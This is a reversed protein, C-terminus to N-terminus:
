AARAPGRPHVGGSPGVCNQQPAIANNHGKALSKSALAVNWRQDYTHGVRLSGSSMIMCDQELAISYGHRASDIVPTLAVNWRQDFPHSVRLSCSSTM